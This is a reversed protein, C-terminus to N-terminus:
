VGTVGLIFIVTFVTIEFDRKFSKVFEWVFKELVFVTNSISKVYYLSISNTAIKNEKIKVVFKLTIIHIAVSFVQESLAIFTHIYTNKYTHIFSQLGVKM